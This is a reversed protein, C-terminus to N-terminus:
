PRDGFLATGVRVLTSGAALALDLDGSMGMSCGHLQLDDALSRVAGFAATTRAADPETPGVTMLGLVTLGASRAHAVLAPTDGLDCGGKDPEGTANVQVYMQAGPARKALEDILSARDISQWVDVVGVLLRIKNSQLRGIFHVPPRQGAFDSMKELTEQAYNEGVADCGLRQALAVADAGFGKTVACLAVPGRVARLAVREKLQALRQAVAPENM